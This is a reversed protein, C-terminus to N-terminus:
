EKIVVESLKNKPVDVIEHEKTVVGTLVTTKGERITFRQGASIIMPRFTTLRATAHEGPILINKGELFDVRCPTNWTRSFMTHTFKSIIPKTRGGESKTLMYISADFHNLIKMSNRKCLVMGRRVEDKKIDRINVGINEGAKAMPVSENFVHLEKVVTQLKKGYGLIDCEDKKKLVGRSLTGVIVTGRNPVNFINDIPLLFPADLDRKPTPIYKDLADLLRNISPEGYESQDGNLALLASGYIVPAKEGDFGYECLLERMEIEVLELVDLDVLDAKNIYVIMNEVGTQKALLLHERTQPMQGDTAAVVIIAGDMQSAGSIMNKIYDAHGPCDTHAYSRKETSYGVHAINITIGRKQEEPAKDIEAYDVSDALGKKSLVKTIASTLTTKGHDVHGITGVNVNVSNKADNKNENPATALTRHKCKPLIRNFKQVLSLNHRRSVIHSSFDRCHNIGPKVADFRFCDDSFQTGLSHIIRRSVLRLM